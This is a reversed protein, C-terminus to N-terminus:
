PTPQALAIGRPRWAEFQAGIICALILACGALGSLPLQDGMFIAGFVAAFVTEASMIIACDAAGTHRQAVVQLTYGLGVSVVGTYVLPGAARWLAAMSTTETLAAAALSLAACVAFQGCALLCAGGLRRAAPGLLLVQLAWPLSSAIVWLDGRGLAFGQMGTLLWTGALCGLAAPWVSWHPRQGLLRWGLLPVLPVYLATLFGAHTVTTDIMGIQQLGAGLFVLGGLWLMNRGDQRDPTFGAAARTRWERWAWPAVVLTGLLFRVGTFTMPGVDAMGWAQGVFASGWILAVGLLLSNAQLRTM